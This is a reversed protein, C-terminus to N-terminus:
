EEVGVGYEYVMVGGNHGTLSVAGVVSLLIFLFLVRVYRPSKRKLLWLAPIASLSLWMTWLAYMRHKELVPHHVRLRESEWIGTRVVLPTMLAALIFLNWATQHLGEKKLILSLVEFGLASTFLAIPFHVLKPHLPILWEPM